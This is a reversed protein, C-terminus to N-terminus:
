KQKPSGGGEFLHPHWSSLFRWGSWRGTKSKRVFCTHWPRHSLPQVGLDGAGRLGIQPDPDRQGLAEARVDLLSVRKPEAEHPGM